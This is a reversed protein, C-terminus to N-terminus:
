RAGRCKDLIDNKVFRADALDNFVDGFWRIADKADDGMLKGIDDSYLAIVAAKQALIDSIAKTVTDPPVCLGRYVREKVSSIHLLPAPVAYPPAIVGAQDFDYDVPYVVGGILILEANHLAYISFDTNGIMYQFLGVMAAQRPDLDAASAGTIAMNKGGLRAAMEDVDELAFAYRTFEPKKSASDVVTMHVLRALHGAPMLLARVRYLNYEEITYREYATQPKCPSVLKFRNLHAFVTKKTDTSAFDVWLPPILTCIKLRSIGRTRVRAPITDTTGGDTFSVSATHWIAKSKDRDRKVQDVNITLTLELPASSEWFPSPKVPKHASDAKAARAAKRAGKVRAAGGQARATAAAVLVALLVSTLRLPRM